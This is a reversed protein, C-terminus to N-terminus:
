LRNKKNEASVIRQQAQDIFESNEDAILLLEQWKIIAMDYYHNAFLRQGDEFLKKTLQEQRFSVRKLALFVERTMPLAEFCRRAKRFNGLDEFELCSNFDVIEVKAEVIESGEYPNQFAIQPQGQQTPSSNGGSIVLVMLILIPSLAVVGLKVPKPLAAFRAVLSASSSSAGADVVSAQSATNEESYEAREKKSKKAREFFLGGVDGIEIEDNNAISAKNVKKGNVRVGNRSRLDELIVSSAEIRILAHYRSASRDELVIDNDLARGIRISKGVLRYERGELNLWLESALNTQYNTEFLADAVSNKTFGESM